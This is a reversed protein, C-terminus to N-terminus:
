LYANFIVKGTWTHLRSTSDRFTSSLKVDEATEVVKALSGQGGKLAYTELIPTLFLLDHGGSRSFWLSGVEASM